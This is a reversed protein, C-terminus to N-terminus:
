SNTCASWRKWAKPALSNRLRRLKLRTQQGGEALIALFLNETMEM